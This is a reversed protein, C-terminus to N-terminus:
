NKAAQTCRLRSHKKESVGASSRAQEAPRSSRQSCRHHPALASGSRLPADAVACALPPPDGADIGCARWELFPRRWRQEEVMPVAHSAQM